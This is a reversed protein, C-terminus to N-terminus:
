VAKALVVLFGAVDKGENKRIACIKTSLMKFTNAAALSEIYSKKHAFRACAHLRYPQEDREDLLETSFAFLGGPSLSEYVRAFVDMLDGLYVFVDCSFVLSFNADPSLITLIDGVVLREYCDRRRAHAIMERFILPPRRTLRPLKVPYCTSFLSAVM